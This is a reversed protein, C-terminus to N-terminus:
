KPDRSFTMMCNKVVISSYLSSLVEHEQFAFPSHLPLLSVVISLSLSAIKTLPARVGLQLTDVYLRKQLGINTM